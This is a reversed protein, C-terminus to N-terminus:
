YIVTVTFGGHPAREVDASRPPEGRRDIRIRGDFMRAAISASRIVRAGVHFAGRKTPVGLSSLALFMACLKM